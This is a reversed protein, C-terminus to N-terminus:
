SLVERADSSRQKLYSVVWPSVKEGVLGKEVAFRVEAESLPTEYPMPERIGVEQGAWSM